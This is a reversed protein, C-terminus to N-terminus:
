KANILLVYILFSFQLVIVQNHYEETKSLGLKQIVKWSWTTMNTYKWLSDEEIDKFTSTIPCKECSPKVIQEPTKECAASM